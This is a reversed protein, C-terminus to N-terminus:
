VEKLFTLLLRVGIATAGKPMYPKDKDNWATGAIDLHVWPTDGAFEKLFYGATVLSGNKGGSNKIDAADSKIYDKYEEYLPMQWAREYTEESAKKLKGMLETNNGMIAIAESGLAVSCAGTLTAIDIVAKPKYYKIAYGMADALALRGEADTNIIEITKGTISKVIDGPKSASGGPLNETAPLIGVINVALDLESVAKIVALVSAGGSMDYKMKEMGEAPKLSIGGSDFTISKGVLALPDGKGGKYEVVIFKPPEASGKSVSLYAGMGEKEIDKRELVKVKVKKGSISKALDSLVAPTMDNSPTNILDKAFNVANVVTQLWKLAIDKDSGLITATKIEKNNESKRYKEFKYLSLLGGEIFYFAPKQSAIFSKPLHEFLKSSVAIDKVGTERLSSFARGGAQRMRDSTIESQKGLGILLIRDSNINRVHLLSSQNQKGTFEKSNIIRRILGGIISDLDSYIDPSYDEFFPLILADAKIGEESINKILINM